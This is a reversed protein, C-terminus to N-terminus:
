QKLAPMMFVFYVKKEEGDTMQRQIKPWFRVFLKLLLQKLKALIILFYAVKLKLWLQWKRIAKFAAALPNSLFTKNM